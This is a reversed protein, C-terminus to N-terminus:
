YGSWEYSGDVIPCEPLNSREWYGCGRYVSVETGDLTRALIRDYMRGESELADLQKLISKGNPTAEDFEFVEGSVHLGDASNNLLVPFGAYILTWQGDLVAKAVFTAGGLCRNNGYGQKLTGYVFVKM